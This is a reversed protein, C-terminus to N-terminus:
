EELTIGGSDRVVITYGVYTFRVELEAGPTKKTHDVLEELADPEISDYLPPLEGESVSERDEVKSVLRGTLGGGESM